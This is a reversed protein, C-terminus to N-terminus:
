GAYCGWQMGLNQDNKRKLNCTWASSDRSGNNEDMM